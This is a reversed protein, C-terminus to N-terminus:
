EQWMCFPARSEVFGASHIQRHCLSCLTILNDDTDNGSQSRLQIHNVQLKTRSGCGQCRWGDRQLVQRCLEQYAEPELEIRQRKTLSSSMRNGSTPRDSIPAEARGALVQLSTIRLIEPDGQDLSVGALFDACIM